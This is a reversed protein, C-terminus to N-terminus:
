GQSKAAPIELITSLPYRWIQGQENTVLLSDDDFCIGESKKVEISVTHAPAALLDSEQNVRFFYVHTYSLVALLAYRSSYAADTITDKVRFEGVERATLTKGGAEPDLRFVKPVDNGDRDKKGKKKEKEKGAEVKTIVYLRGNWHFLAECNHSRGDGYRYPLTKFGEVTVAEPPPEPLQYIKYSERKRSNDGFGGIYLRGAADRTVAEWDENTIGMLTVRQLVNGERDFRFLEPDNGKDNHGWYQGYESAPIIGSLERLTESGISATPNSSLKRLPLFAVPRNTRGVPPATPQIAANGRPRTAEVAPAPVTPNAPIAEVAALPQPTPTVRPSENAPAAPAITDMPSENALLPKKTPEVSKVSSDGGCSVYFGALLVISRFYWGPKLHWGPKM